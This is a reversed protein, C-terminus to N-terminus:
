QTIFFYNFSKLALGNDRNAHETSPVPAIEVSGRCTAVVLRVLMPLLVPCHVVNDTVISASWIHRKKTKIGHITEGDDEDADEQEEEEEWQQVYPM